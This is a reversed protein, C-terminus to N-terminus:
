AKGLVLDVVWCGRVHPGTSRCHALVADADCGADMLADALLPLRDFARDEYIGGALGTVDPTRWRPDFGVPRSPNPFVDRLVALIDAAPQYAVTDDTRHAWTRAWAEPREPWGAWAKRLGKREIAGDAFREVAQWGRVMYKPHGTRRGDPPSRHCCAVAFLLYKRDSAAGRLADFLRGPDACRDWDPPDVPRTRKRAM